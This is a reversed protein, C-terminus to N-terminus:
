RNGFPDLISGAHEGPVEDYIGIPSIWILRRVGRDHM